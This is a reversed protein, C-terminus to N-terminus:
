TYATDRGGNWRREGDAERRQGELWASGQLRKFSSAYSADALCGRLTRTDEAAAVELWQLGMQRQGLDCYNAAIACANLARERGAPLAGHLREADRVAARLQGLDNRVAVRLLRHHIVSPAWLVAGHAWLLARRPRGQDRLAHRALAWYGFSLRERWSQPPQMRSLLQDNPRLVRYAASPYAVLVWAAAGLAVVLATAAVWPWPAAAPRAAVLSLLRGDASVSDSSSSVQARLPTNPSGGSSLLAQLPGEFQITGAQVDQGAMRGHANRLQLTGNTGLRAQPGLYVKTGDVLRPLTLVADFAYLYHEDVSGAAASGDPTGAPGASQPGSHLFRSGEAASLEVDWDYLAIRFDGTITLDGQTSCNTLLLADGAPVTLNTRASSAQVRPPRPDTQDSPSPQLGLCSSHVQASPLPRGELGFLLIRCQDRNAVGDMKADTYFSPPSTTPKVAVNLLPSAVDAHDTEVTLRAASLHLGSPVEAGLSCWQIYALAAGDLTGNGHAQLSDATMDAQFSAVATPAVLLLCLLLSLHTLRAPPGM